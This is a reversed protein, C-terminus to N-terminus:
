IQQLHKKKELAAEKPQQEAITEQKLKKQEHLYKQYQLRSNKMAMILPKDIVFKYPKLKNSTLYDKIIWRSIM